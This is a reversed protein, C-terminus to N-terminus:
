YLNKKTDRGLALDIVKAPILLKFQDRAIMRCFKGISMPSM